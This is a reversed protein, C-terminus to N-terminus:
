DRGMGEPDEIVLLIMTMETVVEAEEEVELKVKM